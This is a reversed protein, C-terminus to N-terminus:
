KENTDELEILESYAWIKVINEFTYVLTERTWGKHSKAIVIAKYYGQKEEIVFFEQDRHCHTFAAVGGEKLIDVIDAPSTSKQISRGILMLSAERSEILDRMALYVQNYIKKSYLEISM